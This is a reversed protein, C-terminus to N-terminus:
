FDFDAENLEGAVFMHTTSPRPKTRAARRRKGEKALQELVEEGDHPFEDSEDPEVEVRHRGAVPGVTRDGRFSGDVVPLAVKPGPTSEEPIFRITGRSLPAGDITVTGAVPIRDFPDTKGGCGVSLGVLCAVCFMRSKAMALAANLSRERRKGSHIATPVSGRSSRDCRRRM